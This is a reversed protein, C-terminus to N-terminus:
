SYPREYDRRGDNMKMRTTVKGLEYFKRFEISFLPLTQSHPSFVNSIVHARMINFSHGIKENTKGM